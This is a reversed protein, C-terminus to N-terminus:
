KILMRIGAYIIFVSFIKGLIKQPVKPLLWSGAVSGALGPLIYIYSDSIKVNGRILYMIASIVTLPLIVSIATAHSETKSLKETKLCEVAAIGGCSGVLMNIVGILTGLIVSKAKKM